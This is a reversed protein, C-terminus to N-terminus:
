HPLQFGPKEDPSIDLHKQCLHQGAPVNNFSVPPHSIKLFEELLYTKQLGKQFTLNFSM